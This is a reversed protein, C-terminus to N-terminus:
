RGSPRSPPDAATQTERLKRALRRQLATGNSEAYELSLTVLDSRVRRTALAIAAASRAFPDSASLGEQLSADVSPLGAPMRQLAEIAARAEIQRSVFTTLWPIAELIRKRGCVRIAHSRVPPDTLLGLVARTASATLSGPSRELASLAAGRVADAPDELLRVVHSEVATWGGDAFSPDLSNRLSTMVAVQERVGVDQDQLGIALLAAPVQCQAGAMSRWAAMRVRADRDSGCRQFTACGRKGGTGLLTALTVVAMARIEPDRDSALKEVAEVSVQSPAAVAHSLAARRVGEGPDDLLLDGVRQRMPEDALTTWHTAVAWRVDPSLSQLWTADGRLPKLTGLRGSTWVIYRSMRESDLGTARRLLDPALAPSAPQALRAAAAIALARDGIRVAQWLREREQADAPELRTALRGIDLDSGAADVSEGNSRTTAGTPTETQTAAVVALAARIWGITEESAEADPWLSAMIASRELCIVATSHIPLGAQGAATSSTWVNGARRWEGVTEGIGLGSAALLARAQSGDDLVASVAARADSDSAYTLAVAQRPGARSLLAAPVDICVMSQLGQLSRLRARSQSVRDVATADADSVEVGFFSSLRDMAPSRAVGLGAVRNLLIDSATVRRAGGFLLSLAAEAGYEDTVAAVYRRGHGVSLRRIALFDADNSAVAAEEVGRSLREYLASLKLRSAVQQSVWEAHSEALAHFMTSERDIPVPGALHRTVADHQLFHALEHAFVIRLLDDVRCQLAVSEAILNEPFVVVRGQEPESIALATDSMHLIQEVHPPSASQPRDDALIRRALAEKIWDERAIAIVDPPQALTVGVVSRVEGLAVALDAKLDGQKWGYRSPDAHTRAEAGVVVAFALLVLALRKRM